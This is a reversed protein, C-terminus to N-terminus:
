TGLRQFSSALYYVSSHMPLLQFTCQISIFSTTHSITLCSHILPHFLLHTHTKDEHSLPATFVPVGFVWSGLCSALPALWRKWFCLQAYFWVEKKETKTFNPMDKGCMSLIKLVWTQMDSEKIELCCCFQRSFLLLCPSFRVAPSAEAIQMEM